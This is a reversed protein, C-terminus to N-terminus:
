GVEMACQRTDLDSLVPCLWAQYFILSKIVLFVIFSISNGVPIHALRKSVERGERIMDCVCPSIGDELFFRRRAMDVLGM